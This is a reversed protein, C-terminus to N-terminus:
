RATGRADPHVVYTVTPRGGGPSEVRRSRVRGFDALISLALETGERDLLHWGRRYVDRATFDDPLSALRRDLERAADMEPALAPAYLRRAHSELFEDCWALARVLSEVGVPGGTPNDALHFLLALSPALSRYKALHAELAPHLEGARLRDELRERWQDFDAQAETSFRLFPIGDRERQAGIADPDLRDLRAFVARAKERAARDPQRDVNVWQAPHDPWVLLQFRQLLGDDGSGGKLAGALYATLPGPQIGGLISVCAAEIEVTGRGIRDFTFAGTGNWAELYFARSGERGERDLSSLFGVLEDRFVLIGRPNDRLLEGLKEVTSDKTLYRRRAPPEPDEAVEMAFAQVRLNDGAKVAKSLEAKAHKAQAEAIACEARYRAEDAQFQERAQAELAEVMKLPEALAPTKLLSPRGVVAGWLNPVVSWDDRAKPRIAIQRGVVSALAVVAAVAPFEAPCQLREAVDVLWPRLAAPLLNMDFPAVPPLGDPLPEAPSWGEFDDGAVVAAMDRKFGDVTYATADDKTFFNGAGDKSVEILAGNETEALYLRGWGNRFVQYWDTGPGIPAAFPALQDYDPAATM